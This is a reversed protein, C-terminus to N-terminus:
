VTECNVSVIRFHLSSLHSVDYWEIFKSAGQGYENVTKGDGVRNAAKAPSRSTFRLDEEEDEDDMILSVTVTGRYPWSLKDDNEGRM